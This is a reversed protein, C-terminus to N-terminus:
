AAGPPGDALSRSVPLCADPALLAQLTRANRVANANGDNNFYVYVDQGARSWERIRDAWWQLDADSYSDAYLQHHDPGHLRVYAFGTTARLVCPLNAGSMVCYAAGHEALLAFTQECHWSHHRFEVAMRIWDPVLQLFYALRIDDRPQSPPLQVLLVARKDGLEHWGERIRQLWKEPAYLKRAHTLGRPAKVSLRFGDPLRDHWRRFAAPRPWRYFSSNLEATCFAAAYCSLRRGSPLGPPYLEPHWHDYSWGSTGIGIAVPDRLL